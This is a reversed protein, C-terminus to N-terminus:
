KKVPWVAMWRQEFTATTGATSKYKATLTVATLGAKRKLKSVNCGVATASNVANANYIADADAAGTGGIDYSMISFFGIGASVPGYISAGVSVDYDAAFPLVISPGATALAAYTVSTTGETTAVLSFLPPGGIFAWYNGAAYWKFRWFVGNTTDAAYVYEDGNNPTSPFVTGSDADGGATASASAGGLYPGGQGLGAYPNAPGSAGSVFDPEDAM